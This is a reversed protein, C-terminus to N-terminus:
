WYHVLQGIFALGDAGPDISLGGARTAVGLSTNWQRAFSYDATVWVPFSWRTAVSWTDPSFLYPGNQFQHFHGYHVGVMGTLALVPAIQWVSGGSVMAAWDGSTQRASFERAALLQGIWAVNQIIKQRYTAQLGPTLILGDVSGYGISQFGFTVGATREADHRIQYQVVLPIPAWIINWDESLSQTFILPSGSGTWGSSYTAPQHLTFVATTWSAVGKPLTYPRDIAPRPYKELEPGSACSASVLALLICLSGRLHRANLSLLM